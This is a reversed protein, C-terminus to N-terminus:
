ASNTVRVIYRIHCAPCGTVFSACNNATEEDGLLERAYITENCHPCVSWLEWPRKEGNQSLEGSSANPDPRSAVTRAVPVPCQNLTQGILSMLRNFEDHPLSTMNYSVQDINDYYALKDPIIGRELCYDFLESGPYPHVTGVNVHINLCHRKYFELSEKATELTEAPDGFIFNGGFGMRVQRSLEIATEIQRPETKKNMSVLVTPSASEIGYSFFFCGAQKALQLTAHDLNASAHTQFTWDFDWGYKERGELVATAFQQLRGKHVAFLEDLIILINFHYREHMVAIEEMINQISRFRYRKDDRHVCFSCNFPCGRAAVLTMPVPHPRTYRFNYRAVLSHNGLMSSMGFPEYDPFPHSDVDVEDQRCENFVATGNAWYGINPVEHFLAEGRELMNVLKVIAVEADGIICFDPRLLKFVYEADNTIIGGGCVIPIHPRLSRIITIADNIFHIDTSLGGLGIMHPNTEILAQILRNKLLEQASEFRVDNNPNLGVVSHGAQKLAAAIYAFGVPFDTNSLFSPHIRPYNAIPTILLIKM